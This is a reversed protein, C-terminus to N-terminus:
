PSPGHHDLLPFSFFLHKRGDRRERRNLRMVVDVVIGGVIVHMLRGVVHDVGSKVRM